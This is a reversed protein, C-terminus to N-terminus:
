GGLYDGSLIRQAETVPRNYVYVWAALPEGTEPFVTATVRTFEAGEYQDLTALTPAGHRLQYVEGVVWEDPASSLLLGPYRGLRYLKGHIRARGLLTEREALLRAFENQLASLLTGYVFLYDM